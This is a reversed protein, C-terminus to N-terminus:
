SLPEGKKSNEWSGNLREVLLDAHHEEFCECIVYNDDDKDLTTDVITYQFCCHMSKSGEIKKYRAM